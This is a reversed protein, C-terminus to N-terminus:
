TKMERLSLTSAVLFLVKTNTNTQKSQWFLISYIPHSLCYVWHTIFLSKNIWTLCCTERVDCYKATVLGNIKTILLFPLSFIFCLFWYQHHDSKEKVLPSLENIGSEGAHESNETAHFDSLVWFSYFFAVEINEQQAQSHKASGMLIFIKSCYWFSFM